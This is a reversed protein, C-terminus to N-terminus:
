YYLGLVKMYARGILNEGEIEDDANIDGGYEAVAAPAKYVLHAKAAKLADMIKKFVPDSAYRQRVYDEIVAQRGAAWAAENFKAGVKKMESAKSAKRVEDGEDELLGYMEKESIAAGKEMRQLAYKQHLAGLQGFLSAGLEPKNSAIQFKAAALAAELSPYVVTPDTRDKLPHQYYTSLIRKWAKEKIGLDDKLPSKHYFIHIKGTAKEMTPEEVEEEEEEAEEEEEEAEEEEEEAEEEEAEEEESEEAKPELYFDMQPQETDMPIDVEPLLDERVLVESAPAVGQPGVPGVAIEREINTEATAVGPLASPLEAGASRRKVIFWRNLFSFRRLTASM